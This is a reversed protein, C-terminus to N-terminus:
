AVWIRANEFLRTWPSRDSWEKPHWSLRTTHVVREPHPMLIMVRGSESTVGTIGLPSGNPNNPYHETILGNNDVYQMTILQKESLMELQQPKAFSSYGEGHSVVVPLVSDQMDAFFISPSKVIKVLSLRAEFQESRNEIFRPWQSAGPIIEHLQSLMQCGNCVGLAFTDNRDFFLSFEDRLNNHLLINMAWARGAGLVDGYSFGGCAAIGRFERLSAQKTLLDQMTVDVCEFGAQEFAAAMEIHGNVGQERLIAVKPRSLLLEASVISHEFAFTVKANLGQDINDNIQTFQQEACHPNDRLAQLRYSTESWLRQLDARSNKYIIKDNQLFILEQKETPMGVVYCCEALGLKKLTTIVKDLNNKEIQIIAGLEENFLYALPNKEESPLTIEIGCRSAFSMECLAAFLGGDSRDHYALLLDDQKLQQLTTFFAKLLQASELDPTENQYFSFTQALISGGLRNKGNALDILLLKTDSFNKKLQPILTRRIDTVPAFASIILSLPARMKKDDWRARMSLSDKGVPIAIGLEPCLEKGVAKVANFLEADEHPTGLAAMWNASLKIDSIDSIMAAAINTIAEGVAMRASAVANTIAIPAREGMAMAEGTMDKFGSATVAVDAVPVQWPGIMQDRATLGGVSRDSITILFSKDAVSPHRLVRIAAEEISVNKTDWPLTKISKSIATRQMKLPNGVIVETPLDIVATSSISDTVEIHQEAITSGVIAYPCRERKCLREFLEIQEKKIALVYREQAENCWLELPSLSPDVTPIQRLDFRGGCNGTEVLEPLANSLGGAGVDHISLIPNEADLQWCADIVEQCRRQMEPNGRQVSAFDLEEAQSGAELSSAAGGGLGILMAPGGLVVLPTGPPLPLKNLQTLRINGMGGAIMIPKLYGIYNDKEETQISLTRFFGTLNPRGFENNFRAAGIPAELMIELPTSFSGPKGPNIEWPQKFDPIMLDAVAYGVLGAKPKAGRGTAGEDRIEGGAGTAAGPFPSVATPHNHTEVKIVIGMAEQSYKFTHKQPTPFFRNATAGQIVAANDNYAILLGQNSVKSTFRIMDFLSEAQEVGDIKWKANFIKHRCHESNAQAFMMLEVDTPNRKMQQFTNYLYEIEDPSLALGLVNNAKDLAVIGEDLVPIEKLSRTEQVAFVNALEKEDLIISQTMCDHLLKACKKLLSKKEQPEIETTLFEYIVAHEIRKVSTLGCVKAIQTAQSSWPSITGLRPLVIFGCAFLSTSVPEAELLSVLTSHQNKDLFQNTEILFLSKASLLQMEPCINQVAATLKAQKSPTIANRGVLYQYM